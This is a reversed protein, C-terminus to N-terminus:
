TLRTAIYVIHSGTKSIAGAVARYQLTVSITGSESASMHAVEVAGLTGDNLGSIHATGGDSADIRVRIQGTGAAAWQFQAGGWAVVQYTVWSAPPVLSLSAGNEFTGSLTSDTTNEVAAAAAVGYVAWDRVANGWEDTIVEGAVVDPPVAM